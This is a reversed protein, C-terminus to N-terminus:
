RQPDGRGGGGHLQWVARYYVQHLNDTSKKDLKFFKERYIYDIYCIQIYQLYMNQVWKM